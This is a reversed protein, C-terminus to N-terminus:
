RRGKGVLYGIAFPIALVAAGIAPYVWPHQEAYVYGRVFPMAKRLGVGGRLNDPTRVCTPIPRGNEIAVLQDVRCITEALYPDSAASVATSVGATVNRITDAVDGLGPKRHHYSM